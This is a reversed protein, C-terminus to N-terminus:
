LELFINNRFMLATKAMEFHNLARVCFENRVDGTYLIAEVLQKVYECACYVADPRVCLPAKCQIYLCMSVTYHICQLIRVCMLSCDGFVYM